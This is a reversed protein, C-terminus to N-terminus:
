LLRTVLVGAAAGISLSAATVLADVLRATGSMLDGSMIDRISNVLALGPVVQMLVGIMIISTNIDLNLLGVLDTLVSVLVGSLLSNIFSNLPFKGLFILLARLIFGIVFAIFFDVTKGGFMMTFCASSLAATILIVFDSYAPLNEIRQLLFMVEHPNSYRDKKELHRLLDNVLAVKRLNTVRKFIRKMHTHNHGEEDTYSFIIVTPTVFSSATKAGLSKAVAVATEEARYTEGGNELVIAAAGVAIDQLEASLIQSM